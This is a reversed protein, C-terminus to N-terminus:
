KSNYLIIGGAVICAAGVTGLAITAATAGVESASAIAVSAAAAVAGGVVMGTGAVKKNINPRHESIFEQKHEEDIQEAYIHNILSKVFDIREHSYNTVLNVMQQNLTDETWTATDYEFSENNHEDFLDVMNAEAYVSAERYAKLTKDELMINNLMIRVLRVNKESVANKFEDYIAM